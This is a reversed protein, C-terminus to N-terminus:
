QRQNFGYVTGGNWTFIKNPRVTTRNHRAKPFPNSQCIVVLNHMSSEPPRDVHKQIFPLTHFYHNPFDLCVLMKPSAQNPFHLLHQAIVQSICPGFTSRIVPAAYSAICRFLSQFCIQSAYPFDDPPQRLQFPWVGLGQAFCRAGTPPTHFPANPRGPVPM